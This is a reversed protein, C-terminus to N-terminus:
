MIVFGFPSHRGVRRWAVLCNLAIMRRHVFIDPREPGSLRGRPHTPDNERGGDFPAASFPGRNERERSVEFPEGVDVLRDVTLSPRTPIKPRTGSFTM